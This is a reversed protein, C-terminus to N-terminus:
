KPSGTLLISSNGQSSLNPSDVLKLKELSKNLETDFEGTNVTQLKDTYRIVQDQDVWPSVASANEVASQENESYEAYYFGSSFAAILLVAAAAYGSYKTLLQKTKNQRNSQLEKAKDSIEQIIHQPPNKQPLKNLRRYTARLSEVEILLDEDERMRKEFELEESPDMEKMLYRICGDENNIHM